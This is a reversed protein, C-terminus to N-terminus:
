NGEKVLIWDEGEFDGDSVKWINMKGNTFISLWGNELVGYDNEPWSVRRVKKGNAIEKIATPFSMTQAPMEQVDEPVYTEVPTLDNM